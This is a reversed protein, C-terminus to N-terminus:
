LWRLVLALMKGGFQSNRRGWGGVLDRLIADGDVRDGRDSFQSEGWVGEEGERRGVALQDTPRVSAVDTGDGM